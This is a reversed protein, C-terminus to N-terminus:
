NFYAAIEERNVCQFYNMYIETVGEYLILLSFQKFLIMDMSMGMFWLDRKRRVIIGGTHFENNKGM